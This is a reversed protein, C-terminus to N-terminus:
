DFYENIKRKQNLMILKQEMDIKYELFEGENTFVILYNNLFNMGVFYSKSLLEPLSFSFLPKSANFYDDCSKSILFSM